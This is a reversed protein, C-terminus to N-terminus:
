SAWLSAKKSHKNQSAESSKKVPNEKERKNKQKNNSICACFVNIKLLQKDNRKNTKKREGRKIKRSRKKIYKRQERERIRQYFSRLFFCWFKDNMREHIKM